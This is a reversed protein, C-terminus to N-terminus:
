QLEVEPDTRLTRENIVAIILGHLVPVDNTPRDGRADNLARQVVLLEDNSFRGFLRHDPTPTPTWPKKGM